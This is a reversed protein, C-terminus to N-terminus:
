ALALIMTKTFEIVDIIRQVNKDTEEIDIFTVTVKKENENFETKLNIDKFIIQIKDSIKALLFPEITEYNEKYRDKFLSKNIKFMIHKQKEFEVKCPLYLFAGKQRKSIPAEEEAFKSLDCIMSYMKGIYRPEDTLCILYVNDKAWKDINLEVKEYFNKIEKKSKLAKLALLVVVFAVTLGALDKLADLGDSVSFGKIFFLNILIALVGIPALIYSVVKEFKNIDM